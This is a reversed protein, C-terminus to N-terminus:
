IALIEICISFEIKITQHISLNIAVPKTETQFRNKFIEIVKCETTTRSNAIKIEQAIKKDNLSPVFLHASIRLITLHLIFLSM